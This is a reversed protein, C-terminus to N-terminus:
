PAVREALSARPCRTASFTDNALALPVCLGDTYKQLPEYLAAYWPVYSGSFLLSFVSAVQFSKRPFLRNYQEERLKPLASQAALRPQGQRNSTPISISAVGAFSLCQAPYCFYSSINITCDLMFIIM